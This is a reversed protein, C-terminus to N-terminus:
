PSYTTTIEHEIFKKKLWFYFINEVIEGKGGLHIWKFFKRYVLIVKALRLSMLNELEAVM